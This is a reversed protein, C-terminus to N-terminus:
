AKDFEKSDERCWLNNFLVVGNNKHPEEYSRSADATVKNRSVTRNETNEDDDTYYCTTM